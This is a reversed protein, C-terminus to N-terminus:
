LRIATLAAIVMATPLDIMGLVKLLCDLVLIVLAVIWGASISPNSWTM